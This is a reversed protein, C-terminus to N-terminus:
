LDGWPCEDAAARLPSAMFAVVSVRAANNDSAHTAVSAAMASQGALGQVVGLLGGSFVGM